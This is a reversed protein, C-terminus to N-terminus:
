LCQRCTHTGCRQLLHGGEMAEHHLPTPIIEYTDDRCDLYLLGDKRAYVECSQDLKGCNVGVYNNEATKAIDIIEAASLTIGNVHCLAELMAICVAASSSLGGIPLTGEIVGSLGIDLSYRMGLEQTVGRLYDAWDYQKSEPVSRVHWQARKDFQLSCLEVVGNQKARYAIHIGRDIAFGTIKGLNHDSHAGIPCIRYPCFAVDDPDGKYIEVFKRTCNM